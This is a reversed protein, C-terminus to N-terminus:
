AAEGGGSPPRYRGTSPATAILLGQDRGSGYTISILGKRALAQATERGVPRAIYAHGRAEIRELLNKVEYHDTEFTNPGAMM